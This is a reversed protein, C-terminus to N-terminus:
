EEDNLSEIDRYFNDILKVNSEQLSKKDTFELYNEASM